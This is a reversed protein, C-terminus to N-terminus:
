PNVEGLISRLEEIRKAGEHRGIINQNNDLIIFSPLKEVQYKQRLNIGDLNDVDVDLVHYNETLAQRIKADPFVNSEMMKCPLCWKAGFKIFVKKGDIASKENIAHFAASTIEMKDSVIAVRSATPKLKLNNEMVPDKIIPKHVTVEETKIDKSEIVPPVEEGTDSTALEITSTIPRENTQEVIIGGSNTTTVEIKERSEGIETSEVVTTTINDTTPSAVNESLSPIIGLSANTEPEGFLLKSNFIGSNVFLAIILVGFTLRTANLYFQKRKAVALPLSPSLNPQPTFSVSTPEFAFEFFLPQANSPYNGEFLPKKPSSAVM